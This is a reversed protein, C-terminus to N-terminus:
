TIAVLGVILRELASFRGLLDLYFQKDYTVEGSGKSSSAVQQGDDEKLLTNADTLIANYDAPTDPSSITSNKGLLETHFVLIGGVERGFASCCFNCESTHNGM